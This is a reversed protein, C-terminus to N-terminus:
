SGATSHGDTREEVAHRRQQESGVGSKVKQAVMKEKLHPCWFHVFPKISIDTSDIM